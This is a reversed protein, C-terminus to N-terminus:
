ATLGALKHQYHALERLSYGQRTMHLSWAKAQHYRCFREKAEEVNGYVQWYGAYLSNRGGDRMFGQVDILPYELFLGLEHPFVGGGDAYARMRRGLLEILEDQKASEYATDLSELFARHAPKALYELLPRRRYLLFLSKCHHPTFSLVSVGTGALCRKIEEAECSLGMFSNAAKIGLIVPACAYALRSTMKDEAIKVACNKQETM